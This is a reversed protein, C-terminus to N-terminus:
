IIKCYLVNTWDLYFALLSTVIHSTLTGEVMPLQSPSTTIEKSNSDAVYFPSPESNAPLVSTSEINDQCHSTINLNESQTPAESYEKLDEVAACDETVDLRKQSEQDVSCDLPTQEDLMAPESMGVHNAFNKLPARAPSPYSDMQLTSDSRLNPLSFLRELAKESSKGPTPVNEARLTSKESLQHRAERIFTCEFLRSYKNMPDAFSTARRFCQNDSHKQLVSTSQDVECSSFDSYNTCQETDVNKQLNDTEEQMVKSSNRDYTVKQFVSDMIPQQKEKRSERIVRSIKKKLNKFRKIVPANEHEIKLGRPSCTPLGNFSRPRGLIPESNGVEKHEVISPEVMTGALKVDVTYHPRHCVQVNERENADSASGQKFNNKTSELVIRGVSGPLPFSASKTLGKNSNLAERSHLYQLLPTGPDHIIKLFYEKKPGFVDLADMLQNLDQASAGECFRESDVIDDQLFPNRKISHRVEESAESRKWCSMSLKAACLECMKNKNVSKNTPDTRPPDSTSFGSPNENRIKQSEDKVDLEVDFDTSESHTSFDIRKPRASSPCSSSRRHRGMKKSMEESFRAKIRSKM